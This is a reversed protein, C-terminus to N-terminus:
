RELNFRKPTPSTLTEFNQPHQPGTRKPHLYPQVWSARGKRGMHTVTVFKTAPRVTRICNPTGFMQPRQNVAGKSPSMAGLFVGNGM